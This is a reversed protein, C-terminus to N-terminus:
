DEIRGYLEEYDVISMSYMDLVKAIFVMIDNTYCLGYCDYAYLGNSPSYSFEINYYENDIFVRTKFSDYRNNYLVQIFRTIDKKTIEYLNLNRFNNAMMKNNTM